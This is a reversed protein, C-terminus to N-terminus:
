HASAAELAKNLLEEKNASSLIGEYETLTNKWNLYREYLQKSNYHHMNRHEAIQLESFLLQANEAKM